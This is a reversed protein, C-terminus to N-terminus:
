VIASHYLFTVKTVYAAETAWHRPDSNRTRAGNLQIGGESGGADVRQETMADRCRCLSKGPVGANKM